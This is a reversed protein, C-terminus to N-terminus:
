AAIAAPRPLLNYRKYLISTHSYIHDSVSEWIVEDDVTFKQKGRLSEVQQRMQSVPYEPDNSPAYKKILDWEYDCISLLVPLKGEAASPGDINLFNCKLEEYLTSNYNNIDLVDFSKDESYDDALVYKSEMLEEFPNHFFYPIMGDQYSFRIYPKSAKMSEVLAKFKEFCPQLESEFLSSCHPKFDEAFKNYGEWTSSGGEVLSGHVEFRLEYARDFIDMNWWKEPNVDSLKLRLYKGSYLYDKSIWDFEGSPLEHHSDFFIPDGFRRLLKTYVERTFSILNFRAGYKSKPYQLEFQCDSNSLWNSISEVRNYDLGSHIYYQASDYDFNFTTPTSM